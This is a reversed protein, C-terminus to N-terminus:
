TRSGEVAPAAPRAAEGFRAAPHVVGLVFVTWLAMWALLLVTGDVLGALAGGPRRARASLGWSTQSLWKGDHSTM